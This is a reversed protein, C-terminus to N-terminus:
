GFPKSLGLYLTRRLGFQPAGVGVGTGDRLEYSKDFLNLVSVRTDLRGLQPLQFTHRISANVQTYAPLHDSNPPGNHPTRRLGTGFIADTSYSTAGQTWAVGASATWRQDHDLYISNNAIYALEAPAFNYQGSEIGSAKAVSYALNGYASLGEKRYSASFEGGYITGKSYNFTSFILANGFQGEDQLHRVDRYYTDFGLTVDHNLVHAIGLDFYNSREAKVATNSGSAPASTTGAFKQIDTSSIKETAPPTFYRSYGAHIRNRASLDYVVGLRPSLQSERTVTDVSDLRAGYNVTLDSRWKWEDQVYLGATHGSSASNDTISIPTFGTQNGLADAAFVQSTNLTGWREESAFLGYRLTHTASLRASLDTQIGTTDNDRTIRSAVGTYILDGNADPYYDIASYRHFLSVQLDTDAVSRQYSVIQFSNTERQRAALQESSPASVGSYTFQPQVGSRTPIQFRNNTAGFILSLRSDDDILYSLYGFGKAQNTRDHTANFAPTPNEIGIENTMFSGTLFYALQGKRGSVDGGMEQHDRRGAILQVSGGSDFAGDKTHIDIVAGTRYGYQAPLAGTLVNIESAFRTDLTQGFGSISEPLITGNIRYQLNAHDGRVHLQGFSDQSVGPARLIVENLPTATGLPLAEIDDHSFNYVSSGTDPSLNNRAADLRHTVVEVAQLTESAAPADAARATLLQGGLVTAVMAGVIRM